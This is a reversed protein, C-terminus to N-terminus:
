SLNLDILTLEMNTIIFIDSATLVLQKCNSFLQIKFLLYRLNLKIEQIYILRRIEKTFRKIEIIMSYSNPYSTNYYRLDLDLM